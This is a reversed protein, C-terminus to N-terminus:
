YGREGLFSFGYCCGCEFDVFGVLKELSWDEKSVKKKVSEDGEVKKELYM